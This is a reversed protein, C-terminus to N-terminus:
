GASPVTPRIIIEVRRNRARGEPTSNDAVPADSGLGQVELRSADVGHAALYAAVAGARQRSLLRNRGADGANDSHGAVVVQSQPFEQLSSALVDLHAAVRAPLQSQGTAFMLNLDLRIERNDVVAVSRVVRNAPDPSAGGGASDLAALRAELAAKQRWARVCVAYGATAGAAAGVVARGRREKDGSGSMAGVEAGLVAGGVLYPACPGLGPGGLKTCASAAAVVLLMAAALTRRGVGSPLPGSLSINKMM